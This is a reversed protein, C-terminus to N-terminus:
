RPARARAGPRVRVHRRRHLGRRHLAAHAAHRGGAHRQGARHRGARPRGARRRAERRAGPRAPHAVTGPRARRLRAREPAARAGLGAAGRRAPRRAPGRGGLAGGGRGHRPRGRIACRRRRGGRQRDQAAIERWADLRGGDGELTAHAVVDLIRRGLEREFGNMVSLVVILTFVGLAIGTIAIGSIFGVFRSARARACTGCGSGPLPTRNMASRM